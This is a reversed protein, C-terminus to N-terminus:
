REFGTSGESSNATTLLRALRLLVCYPPAQFLNKEIGFHQLIPDLDPLFYLTAIVGM